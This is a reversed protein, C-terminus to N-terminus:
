NIKKIEFNETTIINPTQGHLTEKTEVHHKEYHFMNSIHFYIEVFIEQGLWGALCVNPLFPTLWVM